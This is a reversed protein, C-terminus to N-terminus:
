WLKKCSTQKYLRIGQESFCKLICLIRDFHKQETAGIIIVEDLFVGVFDFKKLVNEIKRQFLGPAFKAEFPLQCVSFLRRHTNVTLIKSMKDDVPQQFYADLDFTTLFKSDSLNALIKKNKLLPYKIIKLTIM